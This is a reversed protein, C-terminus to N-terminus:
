VHVSARRGERMRWRFLGALALLLPIGLANGFKVANRTGDSLDTQLPAVALGRSRMALMSPDLLMWDAVNLLLAQNPRGMFDDQFLASTGAVIIRADGQSEQLTPSSVAGGAEAFHSKLKGTVQVMLDYPGSPTITENRWERRPDLNYPKPELWSKASSRALVSVQRGEGATATVPTSFPFGISSLGRTIPSDMELRALSPIFPYPVPMAVVMFGRREQINLQASVADAVLKDGVTIGYTSLLAAVGPDSPQSQFTKPDVQVADLFFAASKGKMLFQDIAKLENPRLPTKPGLILLGDVDADITDKAGLDLPKLQYMEAFTTQLRQFHQAMAPEDHGQLVALVPTKKRTLKKVLSTLDYELSGLDQVVPLTEKKDGYTLVIGMYARKTQVQDEEVVRIEVPQVGAEALEKEVTTPERFRRGFIDRKV